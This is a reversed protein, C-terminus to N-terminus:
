QVGQLARTLELKNMRAADMIGYKQALIRAQELTMREVQAQAPTLVRPIPQNAEGMGPGSPTEAAASPRFRFASPGRSPPTSSIFGRQPIPNAVFPEPATAAKAGTLFGRGMPGLIPIKEAAGALGGMLMKGPGTAAITRLMGAGASLAPGVGLGGLVARTIAQQSEANQMRRAAMSAPDTQMGVITDEQPQGLRRVAAVIEADSMSAPFEVEGHGPVDVLQFPEAM